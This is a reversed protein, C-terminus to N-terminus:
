WSSAKHLDKTSAKVLQLIRYKGDALSAEKKSEFINHKKHAAQKADKTSECIRRKGDTLAAEKKSPLNTNRMLQKSQMRQVKALILNKTKRRGISSRDQKSSRHEKEHAAQKADDKM